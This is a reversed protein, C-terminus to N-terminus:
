GAQIAQRFKPVETFYPFKIDLLIAVYAKPGQLLINTEMGDIEAFDEVM